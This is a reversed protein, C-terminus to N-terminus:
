PYDISKVAINADNVIPPTTFYTYTITAVPVGDLLYQETNKNNTSGYYTYDIQNHLPIEFESAQLAAKYINYLQQDLALDTFCSKTLVM